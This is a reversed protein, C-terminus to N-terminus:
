TLKKKMCLHGYRTLCLLKIWTKGGSKQRWEIASFSTSYTFNNRMQRSANTHLMWGDMWESRWCDLTCSINGERIHSHSVQGQHLLAWIWSSVVGIGIIRSALTLLFSLHKLWFLWCDPSITSEHGSVLVLSEAWGHCNKFPFMSPSSDWHIM